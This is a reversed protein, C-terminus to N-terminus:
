GTKREPFAIVNSRQQESQSSILLAKVGEIHFLIVGGVKRGQFTGDKYRRRITTTSLGTLRSLGKADTFETELTHHM